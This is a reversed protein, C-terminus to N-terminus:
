LLRTSSRRRLLEDYREELATIRQRIDFESQAKRRAAEGLSQRLAPNEILQRLAGALAAVDREPVLLGTVGDAIVEPMGGHKSAIMPMGLAAAEYVVMPIGERDGNRATVSPVLVIDSRRMTELLEAHSLIGTMEVKGSLGLSGILREYDRRREGDGVLRLRLAPHKKLAQAFARIGYEFGKKEVMRGAMLVVMKEDTREVRPPLMTDIGLRHVAVKEAPAGASILLSRLDESVALLLDARRFLWRSCAWYAWNAPHFRESSLLLPVDYGHFTVVLPLRFRTCYPLAYCAGSGFHAHVLDFRGERFLRFFTPSLLTTRYAFAELGTLSHVPSFPFKEANLRERTFVEALYRAHYRIEDFVFTQSYHLFRSSFVAVKPRGAPRDVGSM